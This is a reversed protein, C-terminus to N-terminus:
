RSFDIPFNADQINENLIKKIWRSSSLFNVNLEDIDNKNDVIIDIYIDEGYKDKVTININKIDDISIIEEEITTRFGYNLSNNRDYNGKKSNVYDSSLYKVTIVQNFNVPAEFPHFLPMEYKIEDCGQLDSFLNNQRYNDFEEEDLLGSYAGIDNM